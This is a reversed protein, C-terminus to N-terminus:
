ILLSFDFFSPSFGAGTGNQGARIELPTVRFQVRYQAVLCLRRVAHAVTRYVGRLTFCIYCPQEKVTYFVSVHLFGSNTKIFFM